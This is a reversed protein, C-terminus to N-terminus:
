GCGKYACRASPGSRRTQAHCYYHSNCLCVYHSNFCFGETYQQCLCGQTHQQCLCGQTHQRPHPVEDGDIRVNRWCQLNGHQSTDVNCNNLAEASEVVSLAHLRQALTRDYRGSSLFFHQGSSSPVRAQSKPQESALAHSGHRRALDLRYRGGPNKENLFFLRGTILGIEM